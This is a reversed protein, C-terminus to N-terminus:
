AIIFHAGAASTGIIDVARHVPIFIRGEDRRQQFAFFGAKFLPFGCGIKVTAQRNLHHGFATGFSQTMARHLGDAQGVRMIWQDFGVRDHLQPLIICQGRQIIHHAKLGLQFIGFLHTNEPHDRTKFLGFKGAEAPQM